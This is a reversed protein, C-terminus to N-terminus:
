TRLLEALCDTVNPPSEAWLWETRIWFGPVLESAVRGEGFRGLENGAPRDIVVLKEYPDVMWYERVAGVRYCERKEGRDYGRTSPSAIEIALDAPGLLRDERLNAATAQNVFLIDPEFKRYTSLDMAFPGTLVTGLRHQEVYIRLLPHLFGFVRAHTLSIPSHVILRGDVFEVFSKEDSLEEWDQPTSGFRVLLSEERLQPRSQLLEIAM